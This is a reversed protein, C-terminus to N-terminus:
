GQRDRWSSVGVFRALVKKWLKFIFRGFDGNGQKLGDILARSHVVALLGSLRLL